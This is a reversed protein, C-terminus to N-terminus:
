AKTSRQMMPGSGMIGSCSLKRILLSWCRRLNGDRREGPSKPSMCWRDARPMDTQSVSFLELLRTEVLGVTAHPVDGSMQQEMWLLLM